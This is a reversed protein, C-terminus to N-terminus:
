KFPLDNNWIIIIAISIKNKKMIKMIIIIIIIMMNQRNIEEKWNYLISQFLWEGYIFFISTVPIQHDLKKEENNKLCNKWCM